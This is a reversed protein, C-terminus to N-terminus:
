VAAVTRPLSVTVATLLDRTAHRSVSITVGSASGTAAASAMPSGLMLLLAITASASVGLRLRSMRPGEQRQSLVDTVRRRPSRRDRESGVRTSAPSPRAGLRQVDLH